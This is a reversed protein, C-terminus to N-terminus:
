ADVGMRGALTAVAADELGALRLGAAHGASRLGDGIKLATNLFRWDDTEVAFAIFQEALDSLADAGPAETPREYLRKLEVRRMWKELETM